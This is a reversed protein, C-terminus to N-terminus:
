FLYEFSSEPFRALVKKIETIKFDTKGNIKSTFAVQSIGLKKSFEKQTTKTRALEAILNQYM